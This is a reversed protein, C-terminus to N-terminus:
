VSFTYSSSWEPEYRDVRVGVKCPGRMFSWWVDWSVTWKVVVPGM